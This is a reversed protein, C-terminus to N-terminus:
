YNAETWDEPAQGEIDSLFDDGDPVIANEIEDLLSRALPTLEQAEAPTLGHEAIARTVSRLSEAISADRPLNSM